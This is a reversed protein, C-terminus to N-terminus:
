TNFMIFVNSNSRCHIVFKCIASIPLLEMPNSYYIDNQIKNLGLRIVGFARVFSIFWLKFLGDYVAKRWGSDVSILQVSASLPKVREYVSVQIVSFMQGRGADLLVMNILGEVFNTLRNLDIKICSKLIM